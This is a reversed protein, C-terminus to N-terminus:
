RRRREGLFLHNGAAAPRSFAARSSDSLRTLRCRFHHRVRLVAGEGRESLGPRSEPASLAGPLRVWIPRQFTTGAQLSNPGEDVYASTTAAARRTSRPRSGRIATMSSLAGTCRRRTWTTVGGTLPAMRGGAAKFGHLSVPNPAQFASGASAALSGDSVSRRTALAPTLLTSRSPVRRTRRSHSVPIAGPLVRVVASIPWAFSSGSSREVPVPVPSSCGGSLWCGM